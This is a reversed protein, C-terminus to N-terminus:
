LRLLATNEGLILLGYREESGKKEVFTYIEDLEIIDPTEKTEPSPAGIFEKLEAHAEKIWNEVATPSVKLIAATKRIGVNNVYMYLALLKRAAIKRQPNMSFTHGCDKCACRQIGKTTGNKRANESGCHTCKM